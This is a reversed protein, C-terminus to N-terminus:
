DVNLSQREDDRSAVLLKEDILVEIFYKVTDSSISGLKLHAEAAM